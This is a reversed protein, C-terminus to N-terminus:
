RRRMRFRGPGRAKRQAQVCGTSIGSIPLSSTTAQMRTGAAPTPRTLSSAALLDAGVQGGLEPPQGAADALLPRSAGDAIRDQHNCPVQQGVVAVVAVKAAVEEHLAVGVAGPMSGDGLELGEAVQDGELGGGGFV